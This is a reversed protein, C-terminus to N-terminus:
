QIAESDKEGESIGYVYKGDLDKKLCKGCTTIASLAEWIRTPLEGDNFFFRFEAKTVKAGCAAVLDQHEKLPEASSILHTKPM